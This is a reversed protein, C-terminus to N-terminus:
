CLSPIQGTAPRLRVLEGLPVGLRAVRAVLELRHARLDADEAMVMVEDFFTAIPEVMGDMAVRFGAVSPPQDALAAEAGILAELLSRDAGAAAAPEPGAAIITEAAEPSEATWPPLGVPETSWDEDKPLIRVCRSYAELEGHWAPDAAAAALEQATRFRFVPDPWPSAMVADVVDTPLGHEQMVVRLRRQIFALVDAALGESVDIPLRSCTLEVAAALDLSLRRELLISVLGIALRRLGFPDASGRPVVGAAMLGTLSDLRDAVALAVGPASEPVADDAQRPLHHERIATCVADPEGSARAYIEGMTGQLSTMEIVM